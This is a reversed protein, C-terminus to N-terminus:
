RFHQPPPPDPPCKHGREESVQLSRKVREVITLVLSSFAITGFSTTVANRVAALTSPMDTPNFHWSGVVTSIVSLRLQTFFLTSWLWVFLIIDTGVGSWVPSVLVCNAQTETVSNQNADFTMVQYLAVEVTKVNFGKSVFLVFLYAQLVYFAKIGFLGAFM